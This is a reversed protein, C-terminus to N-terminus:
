PSHFRPSWEASSCNVEEISKVVSAGANGPAAPCRARGARNGAPGRRRHGAAHEEIQLSPKWASTWASRSQRLKVKLPSVNVCSLM